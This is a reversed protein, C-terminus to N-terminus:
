RMTEGVISADPYSKRWVAAAECGLVGCGVILLDHPTTTSPTGGSGGGGGGSGGGGSGSGGSMTALMARSSSRRRGFQGRSALHPSPTALLSQASAALSLLVLIIARMTNNIVFM